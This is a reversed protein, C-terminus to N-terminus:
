LLEGFVKVARQYNVEEFSIESVVIDPDHVLYAWKQKDNVILHSTEFECYRIYNIDLDDICEMLYDIKEWVTKRNPNSNEPENM